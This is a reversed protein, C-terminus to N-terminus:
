ERRRAWWVLLGTVISALPMLVVTILLIVKM